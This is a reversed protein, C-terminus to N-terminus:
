KLNYEIPTGFYLRNQKMPASAIKDTERVSKQMKMDASCVCETPNSMAIPQLHYLLLAGSRQRFYKLVKAFVSKCKEKHIM